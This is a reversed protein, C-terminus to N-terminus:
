GLAKVEAAVEAEERKKREAELDSRLQASEEKALRLDRALMEATSSSADVALLASLRVKLAEIQALQEKERDAAQKLLRKVEAMVDSKRKNDEELQRIQDVTYTTPQQGARSPSPDVATAALLPQGKKGGEKRAKRSQEEIQRLKKDKAELKSILSENMARLKALEATLIRADKPSPKAAALAKKDEDRSEKLVALLGLAKAADEKGDSDAAVVKQLLERCERLRPSDLNLDCRLRLNEEELKLVKSALETERKEKQELDRMLSAPGLAGRKGGTTTNSASELVRVKRELDEIRKAQIKTKLKLTEVGQEGNMVLEHKLQEVEAKLDECRKNVEEVTTKAKEEKVAAAKLASKAKNEANVKERETKVMMERLSHNTKSMKTLMENAEDLKKKNVTVRSEWKKREDWRAVEEASRLRKGDDDFLDGKSPSDELPKEAKNVDRLREELGAVTRELRAREGNAVVAAEGVRVGKSKEGLSDTTRVIMVGKKSLEDKLEKLQTYYSSEGERLSRLQKQLKANRSTLEEVRKRLQNAAAADEKKEDTKKGANATSTTEAQRLLEAKLDEIAKAMAKVKREKEGVDKRLRDVLQRLVSSPTNSAEERADTVEETLKLNEQRLKAVQSRLKEMEMRHQHRAVGAEVGASEKAEEV